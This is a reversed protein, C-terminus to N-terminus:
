LRRGIVIPMPEHITVSVIKHDQEGFSIKISSSGTPTFLQEGTKYIPRGFQGKRGISLMKRMNLTVELVDKEGAGFRYNGVYQQKDEETMAIEKPRPDADGLSNLYEVMQLQVNKEVEGLPHRLRNKAHQLLTIGHPGPIKQIGPSAAVMAMVADLKGMMALSYINPRAGKEILYAAIKKQGMHSAAGLATEFDGFGWDWCANSLEPQRDVLEKVKNYSRHAASVVQRVLQDDIAPFKESINSNLSDKARSLPFFPTKVPYDSATLPVAVLGILGSKIFNRRLHNKGEEM